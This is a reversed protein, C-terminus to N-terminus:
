QDAPELDLDCPLVAPLGKFNEFTAENFTFPWEKRLHLFLEIYSKQVRKEWNLRLKQAMDEIEQISPGEIEVFTGFPLEDLMISVDGVCFTERYTEYQSFRSYGLAELFRRATEPNNIDLEIEVRKEPSSTKEKYTLQHTSSSRIRLVKGTQQLTGEATDFRDNVLLTREQKLEADICCLRNNIEFLNAVYFKVEIEQDM